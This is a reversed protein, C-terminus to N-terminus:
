LIPSQYESSPEPMSSQYDGSAVQQRIQNAQQQDLVTLQDQHYISTKPNADGPNWVVQYFQEGQATFTQKIIGITQETASPTKARPSDKSPNIQVWAGPALTPTTTM